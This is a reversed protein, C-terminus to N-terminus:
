FLIFGNSMEYMGSEPSIDMLHDTQPELWAVDLEGDKDVLVVNYAHGGSFDAVFGCGNLSYRNAVNGWFVKAFDDCDFIEALYEKTDVQGRQIVHEWVSLPLVRYYSDLCVVQLASGGSREVAVRVDEASYQVVNEKILKKLEKRKM